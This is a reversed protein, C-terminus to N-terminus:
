TLIKAIPNEEIKEVKIIPLCSFIGPSFELKKPYETKPIVYVSSPNFVVFWKNNEHNKYKVRNSIIYCSFGYNGHISNAKPPQNINKPISSNIDAFNATSLPSEINYCGNRHILSIFSNTEKKNILEYQEKSLIFRLMPNDELSELFDPISVYDHYDLYYILFIGNESGGGVAVYGEPINKNTFPLIVSSVYKSANDRNFEANIEVEILNDSM